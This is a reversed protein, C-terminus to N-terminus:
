AAGSTCPRVLAQLTMDSVHIDGGIFKILYLNLKLNTLSNCDLSNMPTIVTKGKGAGIFSGSFGQVEIFGINYSGEVLQVVSCPGAAVANNFAMQLAPTDNYGNPLVTFVEGTLTAKKLGYGPLGYLDTDTRDSKNCAVLLLICAFLFLLRELTKM